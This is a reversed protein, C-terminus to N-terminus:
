DCEESSVLKCNHCITCNPDSSGFLSKQWKVMPLNWPISLWNTLLNNMATDFSQWQEITQRVDNDTTHSFVLGSVKLMWARLHSQDFTELCVNWVKVNNVAIEILM